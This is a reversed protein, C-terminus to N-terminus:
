ESTSSYLEMQTPPQHHFLCLMGGDFVAQRKGGIQEVAMSVTLYACQEVDYKDM